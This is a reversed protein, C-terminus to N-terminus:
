GISTACKLGSISSKESGGDNKVGPSLVSNGASHTLQSSHKTMSNASGKQPVIGHIPSEALHLALHTYMFGILSHRGLMVILLM